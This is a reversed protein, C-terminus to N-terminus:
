GWGAPSIAPTSDRRTRRRAVAVAWTGPRRRSNATSARSRATSPSSGTESKLDHLEVRDVRPKWWKAEIIYDDTDFTMAGDIQEYELSFELRPELDFLAFIKYLFTEFDLGRQQPDSSDASMALFDAKLAELTRAFTKVNRNKDRFETLEREFEDEARQQAAHDTTYRRLEAM